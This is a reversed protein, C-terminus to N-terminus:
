RVEVTRDERLKAEVLINMEKAKGVSVEVLRGWGSEVWNKYFVIEKQTNLAISVLGASLRQELQSSDLTSPTTADPFFAFPFCTISPLHFRLV